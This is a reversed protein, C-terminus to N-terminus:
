LSYSFNFGFVTSDANFGTPQYIPTGVFVDYYWSGLKKFQGKGGIVAGSLSQGLLQKASVGSVRGTDLGVYIQHNDKYKWAINNRLYWGREGSLTKSGSFGRVSYRGGIAIRDQSTLLSKNWQGHFSSDLSFSQSGLQFPMQWGIDATWIKMKATGENFLEEPAAIGGFARTGRKYGLTSSLTGKSFYSRQSISAKWGGTRRRQVEVETDNIFSKNTKRWLGAKATIKHKDDRYLVRSLNLSGQTSDGTYHHNRNVGAVVQDYHYHSGGVDLLWYGFPISYNVAYNYTKGKDARGSADTRKEGPQLNSTYSAYFIDNLRLPNDWSISGTGLYKGTSQSGSDDISINLRFPYKKQQWNVVVDSHNIVKSPKIDMEASVTPVRRLNELGQELDRLNLVRDRDTPFANLLTARNAHTQAVNEQNVQLQGVKGVAITLLLKGQSLNQEPILVRGTIYGKGVLRNQLQTTIREIGSVGLCPLARQTTTSQATNSSYSLQFQLKGTAQAVISESQLVNMLYRIFAKPIVSNDISQLRLESVKFCTKDEGLAPSIAQNFQLPIRGDPVPRLQEDIVAQRRESQQALQSFTTAPQSFVFFPFALLNLVILMRM